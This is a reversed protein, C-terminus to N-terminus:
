GGTASKIAGMIKEQVAVCEAEQKNASFGKAEAILPALSAVIQRNALWSEQTTADILIYGSLDVLRGDAMVLVEPHDAERGKFTDRVSAQKIKKEIGEVDGKCDASAQQAPVLAVAFLIAFSWKRYM